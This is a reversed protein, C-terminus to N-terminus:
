CVDARHAECGKRYAPSTQEWCHQGSPVAAAAQGAVADHPAVEAVAPLPMLPLQLEAANGQRRTTRNECAAELELM